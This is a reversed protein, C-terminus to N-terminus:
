RVVREVEVRAATLPLNGSKKEQNGVTLCHRPRQEEAPEREGAKTKNKLTGRQYAARLLSTM